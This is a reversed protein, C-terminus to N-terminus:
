LAVVANQQAGGTDRSVVGTGQMGIAPKVLFEDKHHLLHPLGDLDGSPEPM